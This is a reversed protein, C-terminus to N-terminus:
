FPLDNDKESTDVSENEVEGKKANTIGGKNEPKWDNIEVYYEDKKSNKVQMNVYDGSQGQLFEILDLRKANLNCIIFDPANQHPKKVYLGKVFKNDSM